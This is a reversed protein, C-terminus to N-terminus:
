KSLETYELVSTNPMSIALENAPLCAEWFSCELRQGPLSAFAFPLWSGIRFNALLLMLLLRRCAASPQHHSKGNRKIGEVTAHAYAPRIATDIGCICFATPLGFSGIFNAVTSPNITKMCGFLLFPNGVVGPSEASHTPSHGTVETPILRSSLPHSPILDSDREAHRLGLEFRCPPQAGVRWVQSVANPFPDFTLDRSTKPLLFYACKCVHCMPQM